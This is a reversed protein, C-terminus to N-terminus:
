AMPAEDGGIAQPEPATLQEMSTLQGSTEKATALLMIWLIGMRWYAPADDRWRLYASMPDATPFM